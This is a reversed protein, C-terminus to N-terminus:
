MYFHLIPVTTFAVERQLHHNQYKLFQVRKENFKAICFKPVIKFTLCIGPEFANRKDM